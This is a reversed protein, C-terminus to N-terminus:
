FLNFADPLFKHPLSRTFIFQSQSALINPGLEKHGLELIVKFPRSHGLKLHAKLVSDNEGLLEVIKHVFPFHM